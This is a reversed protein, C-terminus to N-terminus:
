RVAQQFCAASEDFQLRLKYCQGLSMWMAAGKEEDGATFFSIAIKFCRIAMELECSQICATGINYWVDLMVKSDSISLANNFASWALDFQRSQYSVVGM